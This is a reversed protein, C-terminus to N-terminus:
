LVMTCIARLSDRRAYDLWLPRIDSRSHVDLRHWGAVDLFAMRCRLTSCRGLLSQSFELLNGLSALGDHASGSPASGISLLPGAVPGPAGFITGLNIGSGERSARCSGLADRLRRPITEPADRPMGPAGRSHGSAGWTRGPIGSLDGPVLRFRASDVLIM